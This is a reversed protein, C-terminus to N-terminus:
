KSEMASAMRDFEVLAGIIHYLSSGKANGSKFSGDSNMLDYWLGAVPLEFYKMLTKLSSCAVETEPASSVDGSAVARYAAAKIRETHPWFRSTTTKPKRDSWVQDYVAGSGGDVGSEEAQAFLRDCLSKLNKGAVVVYREFLWSWEYQHGPEFVFAGSSNLAFKWGAEFEEGLFGTRPDVFRRLALEALQDAFRRWDRSDSDVDLWALAAEFLHMHPNTALLSEGTAGIETFGGEPLHREAQLYSVVKLATTKYVELPEVSYAHALGFIAFAQTYLDARSDAVSGDVKLSHVFAGSPLSFKSILNQAAVSIMEAAVARPLLGMKMAMAVSYIQRAQVMARRNEGAALGALTLSEEFQGARSDFGVSTWLPLVSESLWRRAKENLSLVDDRVM